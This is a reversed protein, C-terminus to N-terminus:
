LVGATISFNRADSAKGKRIAERAAEAAEQSEAGVTQALIRKREGWPL